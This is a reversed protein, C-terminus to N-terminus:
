GVARKEGNHEKVGQAQWLTCGLRGVCAQGMNITCKYHLRVACSCHVLECAQTLAVQTSSNLVATTLLRRARFLHESLPIAESLQVRMSSFKHATGFNVRSTQTDKFATGSM